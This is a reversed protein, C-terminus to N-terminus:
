RRVGQPSVPFCCKQVHRQTSRRRLQMRRWSCRREVVCARVTECPPSFALIGQTTVWARKTFGIFSPLTVFLGNRQPQSRQHTWPM